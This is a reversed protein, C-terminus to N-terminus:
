DLVSFTGPEIGPEFIIKNDVVIEPTVETVYFLISVICVLNAHGRGACPYWECISFM